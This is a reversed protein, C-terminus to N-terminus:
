KKENKKIKPNIGQRMNKIPTKFFFGLRKRKAVTKKEFVRKLFNNKGGGFFFFFRLYLFLLPM